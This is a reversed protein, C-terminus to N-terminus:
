NALVNQLRSLKGRLSGDIVVDGADIIAGGILSEDIATEIEVDRGFRQKLAAQITGLEADPLASASTVRAKVVHEAEARLEGYLGAIEPLQPLRRNDALLALFNGFQTGFQADAGDPSLLVVADADSLRPDGLLGAVQPDAAIRAAFDLAQSWSAFDGGDRALSFAARAYPRALTLSQSM